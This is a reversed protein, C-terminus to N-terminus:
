LWNTQMNHETAGELPPFIVEQKNLCQMNCHLIFMCKNVTMTKQVKKAAERRYM